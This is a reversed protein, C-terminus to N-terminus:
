ESENCFDVQHIKRELVELKFSDDLISENALTETSIIHIPRFWNHWFGKKLCDNLKAREELIGNSYLGLEVFVLLYAKAKNKFKVRLELDGVDNAKWKYKIELSDSNNLTQYKQAKANFGLGILLILVFFTRM